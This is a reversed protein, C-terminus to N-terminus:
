DESDDQDVEIGEGGDSLDAETMEVDQDSNSHSASDSGPDDSLGAEHFLEM